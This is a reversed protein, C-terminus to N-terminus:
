VRRRLVRERVAGIFHDLLSRFTRPVSACRRCADHPDREAPLLSGRPVDERRGGAAPRPQDRRHRPRRRSRERTTTGVRQIEGNELFRLLLSQMRPAPRGSRTWSSPAATRWRSCARAIAIPAPSAAARIASCSAKSCRKPSRPATSPSSRIPPARRRRLAGAALRDGQRCRKRGTILVKADTRAASRVDERLRQM